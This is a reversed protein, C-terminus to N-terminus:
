TVFFIGTELGFRLYEELNSQLNAARQPQKLFSFAGMESGDEAGTQIEPPCALSLQGYAPDSYRTSTFAPTLRGLVQLRVAEAAAPDLVAGAQEQAQTVAASIALEPQCRFRRPTQSGPPVVSFRVCGAQRHVARVRDTFIVESGLTLEKVHVPGLVTVRELTTAPGPQAGSSDGGIAPLYLPHALRLEALTTADDSVVDFAPVADPVGPIVVLQDSGGLNGILAKAFALKLSAAQIATRLRNRAQTLTTPKPTLTITHTEEGFAVSLTPTPAALAPFSTLAASIVAFRQEGLGQTLGLLDATPDGEATEITVEAPAGPLVVLRDDIDIVQAGTFAATPHAGRIADQLRSRAQTLNAPKAGLAAVHPGDGGITVRVEPAAPLGAPFTSLDASLLAPTLEAPHGRQPSEIICDRANLGVMNEPLRLPGTISRVANLTLSKDIANVAISSADPQTPTGDAGLMVGPVLTCHAVDLQRVSDDAVAISGAILLGNLALRGKQSGTVTLDGIVTPRQRNAAQIVLDTAIMPIALSKEYTRSDDIQIVADPKGDFAWQIIADEVTNLGTSPM